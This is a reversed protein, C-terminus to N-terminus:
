NEKNAKHKDEGDWITKSTAIRNSLYAFSFTQTLIRVVAEMVHVQIPNATQLLGSRTTLCNHHLLKQLKGFVLFGETLFFVRWTANSDMKTQAKKPNLEEIPYPLFHIPVM